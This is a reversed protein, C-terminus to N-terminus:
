NLLRTTHESLHGLHTAVVQPLLPMTLKRLCINLIPARQLFAVAKGIHEVKHVVRFIKIRILIARARTVHHLDPAYSCRCTLRPRYRPRRRLIVILAIEMEHLLSESAKSIRRELRKLECLLEGQEVDAELLGGLLTTSRSVLLIVRQM